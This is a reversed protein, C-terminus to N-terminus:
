RWRRSQLTLMALFLMLLIGSLFFVFNRIDILGKAFDEFQTDVNIYFMAERLWSPVWTARAFMHLGITLCGTFLATLLWAILQNRTAASIWTGIAIYLGGVLVTGVLGTVIPGYDPDAVIELIAAHVLIPVLLTLFFGMAGLWKGAVVQVDSVPATMLLEITNTQYEESLLRMSIAPAIFVLLWVLWVFELRLEAPQGSGFTALFIWSAIFSFVALTVYAVPSYFLSQLERKAIILTQKM